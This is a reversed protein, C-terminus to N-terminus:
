RKRGLCRVDLDHHGRRIPRRCVKPGSPFNRIDEPKVSVVIPATVWQRGSVPFHHMGDFHAAGFSQTTVQLPAIGTIKLAGGVVGAPIPMAALTSSVGDILPQLSLLRFKKRDAVEMEDKGYGVFQIGQDEGM